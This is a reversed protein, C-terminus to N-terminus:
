PQLKMGGRTTLIQQIKTIFQDAELEVAALEAIMKKAKPDDPMGLLNIRM